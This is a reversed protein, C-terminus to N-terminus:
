QHRHENPLHEIAADEVALADHGVFNQELSNTPNSGRRDRRVSVDVREGLRRPHQDSQNGDIL